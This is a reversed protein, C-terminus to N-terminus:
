RTTEAAFVQEYTEALLRTTPSRRLPHGDLAVAEVVGLSSLTLFVGEANLLAAPPASRQEVMLGRKGCIELVVRRTIGPLAGDELGPTVIRSQEIWFLNSATGEAILGRSNLMVGENADNAQAQSRALINAVRSTHKLRTWETGCPLVVSTTHLRWQPPGAATTRAPPHVSMVLTPQPHSPIAYGRPGQGRSLVIRLLGESAHNAALLKEASRLLADQTAPLPISLLSAGHCLRELHWEWRFFCAHQFPITEFLGDGYLFSRDFISVRAQQDSVLEHNLLVKM